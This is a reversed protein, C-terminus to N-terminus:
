HCDSYGGLKGFHKCKFAYATPGDTKSLISLYDEWSSIGELGSEQRIFGIFEEGLIKAEEAGVPGLFVAADECHTWWREQQWGSFGPTRFAIEEAIDSSVSEWSGYGGIGDLDVFTADFKKHASGDFICWPCICEHLEEEAYVPGTYVFGRTTGCCECVADSNKISGTAIPDPHYQFIPLDM